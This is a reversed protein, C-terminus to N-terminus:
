QLDDNIASAYVQGFYKHTLDLCDAIVSSIMPTEPAVHAYCMYINANEKCHLVYEQLVLFQQM